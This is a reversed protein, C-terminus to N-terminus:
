ITWPTVFLLVQSLFKESESEVTHHVLTIKQLIDLFDRKM